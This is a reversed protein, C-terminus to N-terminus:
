GEFRRCLGESERERRELGDASGRVFFTITSASILTRTDVVVVVVVVVEVQPAGEAQVGVIVEGVM